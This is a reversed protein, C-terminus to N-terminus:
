SEERNTTTAFPDFGDSESLNKNRDAVTEGGAPLGRKRPKRVAKPKEPERELSIEGVLGSFFDLWKSSGTITFKDGTQKFKIEGMSEKCVEMLTKPQM